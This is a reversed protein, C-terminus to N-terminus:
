SISYTIAIAMEGSGAGYTYCLAQGSVTHFFETQSSLQIASDGTGFIMDWLDTGPTGCTGATGNQFEFLASATTSGTLSYSCIHVSKAATAAVLVGSTSPNFTETFSFPGPATGPTAGCGGGFTVTVPTDTNITVTGAIPITSTSCDLNSNAEVAYMDMTDPSGAQTATGSVLVQANAAALSFFGYVNTQNASVTDTVTGTSRWRGQVSASQGQYSTVTNDGTTLFNLTFTHSSTPNNNHVYVCTVANTAQPVFLYSNNSNGVGGSGWVAGRTFTVYPGVNGAKIDVQANCFLSALMMSLLAITKKM